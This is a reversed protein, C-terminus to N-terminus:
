DVLEVVLHGDADVRATSDPPLWIRTDGEDVVAPGSITGGARVVDGLVVDM